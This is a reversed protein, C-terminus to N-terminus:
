YVGYAAMSLNSDPTGGAQIRGYINMGSPVDCYTHSRLNGGLQENAASMYLKDEDLIVKPTPVGTGYSLDATYFAASGMTSDDCGMGYQVFKWARTTTGLDTWAGESTTGPTVATGSSSATLAGIPEVGHGYILGSINKPAGYLWAACSVTRATAHNVSAKAAISSGSKIFIPFYYWHGGCADNLGAACSALLNSITDTYSTGGAPDVGITVLTNRSETNAFNNNFNLLVGYCDRAVSAAALVQTYSGFSNSTGPTIATGWGANNPRTTLVNGTTYGWSPNNPVFLGM